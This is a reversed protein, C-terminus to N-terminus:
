WIVVFISCYWKWFIERVLRPRSTSSSRIKSRSSPTLNQPRESDLASTQILTGRSTTAFNCYNPLVKFNLNNKTRQGKNRDNTHILRDSGSTILRYETWCICPCGRCSFGHFLSGSFSEM